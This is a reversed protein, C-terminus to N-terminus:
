EDKKRVVHNRYVYLWLRRYIRDGRVYALAALSITAAITGISEYLRLQRATSGNNSVSAAALSVEQAISTANSLDTDAASPNTSNESGARQILFIASNLREVLGSVDEGNQEASYVSSFASNVSYNASSFASGTAEHSPTPIATIAIGILIGIIM